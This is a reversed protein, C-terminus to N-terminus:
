LGTCAGRPRIQTDTLQLPDRARQRHRRHTLLHLAASTKGPVCTGEKRAASNSRTRLAGIDRSVDHLSPHTVYCKNTTVTAELQPPTDKLMANVSNDSEKACGARRSSSQNNNRNM